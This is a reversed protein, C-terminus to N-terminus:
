HKISEVRRTARQQFRTSCIRLADSLSRLWAASIPGQGGSGTALGALLGNDMTGQRLGRLDDYM